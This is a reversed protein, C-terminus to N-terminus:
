PLGSDTIRHSSSDFSLWARELDDYVEFLTSLHTIQMLGNVRQTLNALKLEGGARRVTAAGAVLCGLGASDIYDVGALNLVIRRQGSDVLAKLRLRLAETERGLTLRGRAELVLVEGRLKDVMHLPM